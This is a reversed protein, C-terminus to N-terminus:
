IASPAARDTFLDGMRDLLTVAFIQRGVMAVVEFDEFPLTGGSREALHIKHHMVYHDSAKRQYGRWSFVAHGSYLCEDDAMVTHDILLVKAWGCEIFKYLHLAEVRVFRPRWDRLLVLLLNGFSLATM